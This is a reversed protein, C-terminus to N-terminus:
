RGKKPFMRPMPAIPTVEPKLKEAAAQEAEIKRIAAELDAQESIIQRDSLPPKMERLQAVLVQRARGYLALRDAATNTRLGAVAQALQPVYNAM